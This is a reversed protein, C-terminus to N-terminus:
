KERWKEKFAELDKGLLYYGTREKVMEADLAVGVMNKLDIFCKAASVPDSFELVEMKIESSHYKPNNYEEWEVAWMPYEYRRVSIIGGCGVDYGAPLSLLKSILSIEENKDMNYIGGIFKLQIYM